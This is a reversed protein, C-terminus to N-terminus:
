LREFSSWHWLGDAGAALLAFIDAAHLAAGRAGPENTSVGEANRLVGFEQFEISTGPAMPLNTWMEQYAPLRQSPYTNGVQGQGKKPIYYLSHAVYDLDGPDAINDYLFAYNLKTPDDDPGAQNFPGIKVKPLRTRIAAVTAEYLALYQEPTGSFRKESQQETGLRFRFKGAMGAGYDAILAGVLRDVFTTWEALSAPPATQGHPGMTPLLPLAWPINDLVLTLDTYGQTVYPDLRRKMLDFHYVLESPDVTLTGIEPGAAAAATAPCSQTERVSITYLIGIEFWDIPQSGDTGTCIRLRDGATILLHGGGSGDDPVTWDLQGTCRRTDRDCDLPGLDVLSTTRLTPAGFPRSVLDAEAIDDYGRSEGKGLDRRNWGGLLRVVTLRDAFPVERPYPRRTYPFDTGDLYAPVEILGQGGS